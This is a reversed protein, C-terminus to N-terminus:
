SQPKRLIALLEFQSRVGFKRYIASLHNRVTSPSVCVATAITAPREGQYLRRVIEWQPSTLEGLQPHEDLALAMDVSDLLGTARLEAGIRRLRRELEALRNLPGAFFDEIRGLLAFAISSTVGPHRSTRAAVARRPGLRPGM